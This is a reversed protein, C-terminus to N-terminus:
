IHFFINKWNSFLKQVSSLGRSSIILKRFHKIVEWSGAPYFSFHPPPLYRWTVTKMMKVNGPQPLSRGSHWTRYLHKLFLQSPCRLVPPITRESGSPYWTLWSPSLMSTETSMNQRTNWDIDTINVKLKTKYFYIVPTTGTNKQCQRDSKWWPSFWKRNEQWFM